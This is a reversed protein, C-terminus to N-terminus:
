GFDSHPPSGQTEEFAPTTDEDPGHVTMFPSLSIAPLAPDNLRHGSIGVEGGEFSRVELTAGSLTRALKLAADESEAKIYATGYIRVDISYVNM